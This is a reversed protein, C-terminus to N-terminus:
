SNCPAVHVRLFLKLGVHALLVCSNHMHLLWVQEYVNSAETYVLKKVYPGTSAAICPAAPTM